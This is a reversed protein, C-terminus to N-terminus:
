RASQLYKVVARTKGLYGTCRCLNGVLYQKIEEETAGDPLERRLALVLMVFGPACFGCQDAGEAVLYRSFEEAEKQVGELTTIRRNALRSTLLTCSPVPKEDLWVTCMGCAGQGCGTKVSIYGHAHLSRNLTEDPRVEWTCPNGNVFLSVTM